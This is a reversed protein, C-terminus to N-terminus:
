CMGPAAKGVSKPARSFSILSQPPPALLSDFFRPSTQHGAVFSDASTYDQASRADRDSGFRWAHRQPSNHNAAMAEPRTRNAANVAAPTSPRSRSLVRGGRM